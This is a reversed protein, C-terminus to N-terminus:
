CWLRKNAKFTFNIFSCASIRGLLSHLEAKKRRQKMCFIWTLASLSVQSHLAHSVNKQKAWQDEGTGRNDEETAMRPERRFNVTVGSHQGLLLLMRVPWYGWLWSTLFLERDPFQELGWHCFPGSVWAKGTKRLLSSYWVNKAPFYRLWTQVCARCFGGPNLRDTKVQQSPPLKGIQWLKVVVISELTLLSLGEHFSLDPAKVVMAPAGWSVGGDDAKKKKDLEQIEGVIGCQDWNRPERKSGSRKRILDWTQVRIELDAMDLNTDTM